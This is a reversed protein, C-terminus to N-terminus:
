TSTSMLGSPMRVVVAIAKMLILSVIKSYRQLWDCGILPQLYAPVLMHVKALTSDNLVEAALVGKIYNNTWVKGSMIDRLIVSGSGDPLIDALDEAASYDSTSLQEAIEESLKMVHQVDTLNHVVVEETLKQHTTLFM